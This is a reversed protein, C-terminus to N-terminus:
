LLLFAIMDESIEVGKYLYMWQDKIKICAEDVM